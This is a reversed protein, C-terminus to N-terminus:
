YILKPLMLSIEPIYTIALLAVISVTVFMMASPVIKSMPVGTIGNAVFLNLGFPPTFNGISLNAVMIIGLHVPDIGLTIAIPYFLPALIIIAAIGEMFMGVILLTVNIIILFIIPSSVNQIIGTTLTQPIRLSTLLWGISQAAAVLVLVQACTVASDVSITYLKKFDIEKYIFMGVFLAYIASFGAAETPTFIGSYIGGLIIVIVALSWMAEKTNSIIEKFTSKRDTPLDHKRAYYYIYALTSLGYVLGAGIGAMFLEGVSVGTASAYIILTISPPILLAVSGSSTILGLAFDKPYKQEVLEPYLSKGMAVVTAPSSGSLAGFVM